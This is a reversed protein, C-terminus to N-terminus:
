KSKPELIVVWDNENVVKPPPCTWAGDKNSRVEGIPTKEGSVPDFYTVKYSTDAPLERVEVAEPRQAYIIRVGDAVGTAYPAENITGGLDGWPAMGFAGMAIAPPWADDDFDSKDWGVPDAKSARWSADSVIRLSEGDTFRIDLACLLGAPNVAGDTKKNEVAMALTNRGEKLISAVDFRAPTKWDASSGLAAGNLRASVSDDATVALSASAIKKGAPVEFRKRLYRKEAPANQAPNGESFWIWQAGDLSAPSSQNVFRAWEPHPTFKQWEYTEFLKKGHALQTSGPLNMSENWPIAGYGVGPPMHPSPGHPDGPRNLQWIGNAGYTHGAAGHTMCLWFM